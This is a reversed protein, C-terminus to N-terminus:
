WVARRGPTPVAPVSLMLGATCSSVAVVHPVDLRGAAVEELERVLPGNTLVGRDYSPRLRATVRDLEPRAPRVFPLGDPFAPEGGALALRRVAGAAGASPGPRPPEGGLRDFPVFAGTAARLTRAPVTPEGHRAAWVSLDTKDALDFTDWA